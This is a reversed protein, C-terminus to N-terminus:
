KARTQSHRSAYAIKRVRFAAHRIYVQVIIATPTHTHTHTIFLLFVAHPVITEIPLVM